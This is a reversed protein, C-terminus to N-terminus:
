SLTEKKFLNERLTSTVMLMNLTEINRKQAALNEM